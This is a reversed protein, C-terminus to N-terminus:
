YHQLQLQSSILPGHILIQMDFATLRETRLIRLHDPSGKPSFLAIFAGKVKMRRRPATSASIMDHFSAIKFFEDDGPFPLDMEPWQFRTPVNNFMGFTADLM